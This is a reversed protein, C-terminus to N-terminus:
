GTCSIVQSNTQPDTWWSGVDSTEVHLFVNLMASRITGGLINLLGQTLLHGGDEVKRLAMSYPPPIYRHDRLSHM